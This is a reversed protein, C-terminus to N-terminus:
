ILINDIRVGHVWLTVYIAVVVDVTFHARTITIMLFHIINLITYLTINFINSELFNYKFLLLTSLLGFCAHGSFIKDFCRGGIIKHYMITCFDTKKNIKVKLKSNRPLITSIITFSRLFVLIM